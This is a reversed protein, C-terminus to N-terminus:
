RVYKCNEKVKKREVAADVPYPIEQALLRIPAAPVVM